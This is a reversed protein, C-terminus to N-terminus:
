NKGLIWLIVSTALNLWNREWSRPIRPVDDFQLGAVSPKFPLFFYSLIVKFFSSFNRTSIQAKISFKFCTPLSISVLSLYVSVVMRQSAKELFDRESTNADFTLIKPLEWPTANFSRALLCRTTTTTTTAATESLGRLPGVNGIAPYRSGWVCVKFDIDYIACRCTRSRTLYSSRFVLMDIIM